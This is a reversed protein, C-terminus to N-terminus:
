LDGFNFVWETLNKAVDSAVMDVSGYTETYVEVFIGLAFLFGTCYVITRLVYVTTRMDEIHSEAHAAEIRKLYHKLEDFHDLVKEFLERQKAIALSSFGPFNRKNEIAKILDACHSGYRRTRQQFQPYDEKSEIFEKLDNIAMEFHGNIVSRLIIDRLSNAPGTPRKSLRNQFQQQLMQSRENSLQEYDIKLEASM